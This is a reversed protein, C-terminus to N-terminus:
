SQINGTLPELPNSDFNSFAKYLQNKIAMRSRRPKVQIPILRCIEFQMFYCTIVYMCISMGPKFSLLIM